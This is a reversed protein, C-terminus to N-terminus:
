PSPLICQEPVTPEATCYTVVYQLAPVKPVLPLGAEKPIDTQSCERPKNRLPPSNPEPGMIPM